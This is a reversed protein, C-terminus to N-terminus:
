LNNKRKSFDYKCSINSYSHGRLIDYVTSSKVDCLKAINSVSDTTKELLECVKMIIEYKRRKGYSYNSFDYKDSVIYIQKFKEKQIKQSNPKIFTIRNINKTIKKIKDKSYIKDM